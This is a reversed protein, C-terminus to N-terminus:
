INDFLFDEFTPVYVQKSKFFNGKKQNNWESYNKIGIKRRQLFILKKSRSDLEHILKRYNIDNEIRTLEAKEKKRKRILNNRLRRILEYNPNFPNLYISFINLLHSIRVEIFEMMELIEEEKTKSIKKISSMSNESEDTENNKKIEIEQCTKYLLKIMTYLKLKKPNLSIDIKGLYNEKITPETNIKKNTKKKTKNNKCENLIKIQTKYRKKNEELEFEKNKIQTFTCSDNRMKENIVLDYQKKLKKIENYVTEAQSFLKINKNEINKIEDLFDDPTEFILQRKYKLIRRIEEHEVGSFNYDSNQELNIKAVNSKMKKTPYSLLKINGQATKRKPNNRKINEELIRSFYQPLVLRKEKVRIQFFFWQIICTKEAEVKKIKNNLQSIDKKLSYIQNILESDYKREIERRKFIFKIYESLKSNFYQHYLSKINELSKIKDDIIEKENELIEENMRKRENKISYCYKLKLLKRVKDISQKTDFYRDKYISNLINRKLDEGDETINYERRKKYSKNFNSCTKYNNSFTLNTNNTNNKNKCIKITKYNRSKLISSNKEKKVTNPKTQTLYFPFSSDSFNNSIDTFLSKTNLRRNNNNNKKTSLKLTSSGESQFSYFSYLIQRLDNNTKEKEKKKRNNKNKYLKLPYMTKHMKLEIRNNERREFLACNTFKKLFSRKCTKISM